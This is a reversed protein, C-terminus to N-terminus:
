RLLLPRRRWRRRVLVVTERGIPNGCNSAVIIIRATEYSKREFRRRRM